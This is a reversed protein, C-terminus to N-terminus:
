ENKYNYKYYNNNNAPNNNTYYPSSVVQIIKNETKREQFFQLTSVRRRPLFFCSVIGLV